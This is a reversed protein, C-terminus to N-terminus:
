AKKLDWDGASTRSAGIGWTGDLTQEDVSSWEGKGSAKGEEWDFRITIGIVPSDTKTSGLHTGSLATTRQNIKGSKIKGKNTPKAAPWEYTGTVSGATTAALDVESDIPKSTGGASTFPGKWTGNLLNAWVVGAVAASYFSPKSTENWQSTIYDKVKFTFGMPHAALDEYFKMGAKNAELDANSFVGTSALGQVGIELFRGTSEAKATSGGATHKVALFIFGEEFFHGLKDAGICIGHVKAASGVVHALGLTQLHYFRNAAGAGSYKTGSLSSSPLKRKSAPLAEIFTEIPSVPTFGGLRTAVDNLFDGLVFPTAAATRAAAIEANVKTDVDSEIDTLGSCSRDDVEARQVLGADRGGQQVVHALEHAMLRRGRGTQPAYEGEAFAIDAGTTFARAGIAKAAERARGGRHIRVHGLDTGLLPEYYSRVETALPQGGTALASAVSEAASGGTGPGSGARRQLVGTRGAGRREVPGQIRSLPAVRQGRIVQDAARDAEREWRDGPRSLALKPQLISTEDDARCRPCSGGCACRFVPTAPTAPWPIVAGPAETPTTALRFLASERRKGTGPSPEGDRRHARAGLAASM